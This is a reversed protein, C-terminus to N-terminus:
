ISLYKGLFAFWAALGLMIVAILGYRQPKWFPRNLLFATGLSLLAITTVIRFDQYGMRMRCMLLGIVVFHIWFVPLGLYALGGKHEINGVENFRSLRLLGCTSYLFMVFLADPGNYGLRWLIVPPVVTYNILDVFSGLYRGFPRAIDLSRALKGDLADILTALLLLSLAYGLNDHIANWFAAWVLGHGSLTLIDAITFDVIFLPKQDELVADGESKLVTGV